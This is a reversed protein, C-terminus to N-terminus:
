LNPIWSQPSLASLREVLTHYCPSFKFAFEEGRSIYGVHGRIIVCGSGCMASVASIKM